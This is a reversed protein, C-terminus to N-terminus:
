FADYAFDPEYGDDYDYEDGDSNHDYDEDEQGPRYGEPDPVNDVADLDDFLSPANNLEKLLASAINAM